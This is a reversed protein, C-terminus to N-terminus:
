VRERLQLLARRCRQRVTADNLEVMEAIELYPMEEIYHLWVLLSDLPPLCNLLALANNGTSQSNGTEESSPAAESYGTTAHQMAKQAIRIQRSHHLCKRYAIGFLWSKLSSADRLKALDQYASLFTEQVLDGTHTTSRFFKTVFGELRGQYREVLIAFQQTKGELVSTIVEADSSDHAPQM